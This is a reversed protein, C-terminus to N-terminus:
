GTPCILELLEGWGPGLLPANAMTVFTPAPHPPRPLTPRAFTRLATERSRAVARLVFPASAYPLVTHDQCGNSTDLQRLNKSGLRTECFWQDASSPSLVFEDGPLARCLGYLWQAPFAPTGGSFRYARTRKKKHMKACSVAPAARAGANGAGESKRPSVIQVVRVCRAALDRFQTMLTMALLSAVFCDM